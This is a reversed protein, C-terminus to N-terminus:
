RRPRGAMVDAGGLGNLSDRFMTGVLNDAFAGGELIISDSFIDTGSAFDFVTPSWNEFTWGSLDASGGIVKIENHGASGTVHVDSAIPFGNVQSPKFIASAFTFLPFLEGPVDELGNVFDIATVLEAFFQNRYDESASVVLVAM